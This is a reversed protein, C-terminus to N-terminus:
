IEEGDKKDNLLPFVEDLKEAANHLGYSECSDKLKYWLDVIHLFLKDDKTEEIIEITPTSDKKTLISDLIWNFDVFNVLLIGLGLLIAFIKLLMEPEM